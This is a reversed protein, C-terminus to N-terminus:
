TFYYASRDSHLARAYEFAASKYAAVAGRCADSPEDPNRVDGGPCDDASKEAGEALAAAYLACLQDRTIMTDGKTASTSDTSSESRM